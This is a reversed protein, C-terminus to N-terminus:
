GLDLQSGHAFSWWRHCKYFYPQFWHDRVMHLSGPSHRKRLELTYSDTLNTSHTSELSVPISDRSISDLNSTPGDSSGSSSSSGTDSGKKKSVVFAVPIVIALVLVVLLLCGIVIRKKKSWNSWFKWGPPGPRSDYSGEWSDEEKWQDEMAPGGGGRRRVRADSSHGEELYAGSVVRAGSQHRSRGAAVKAGLAAGAAEDLAARKRQRRRERRSDDEDRSQEERDADEHQAALRAMADVSLLHSASGSSETSRHKRAPV